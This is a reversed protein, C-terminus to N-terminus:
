EVVSVQGPVRATVEIFVVAPSVKEVLDAYGSFPVDARVPTIALANLSAVALTTALLVSRMTLRQHPKSLPHM